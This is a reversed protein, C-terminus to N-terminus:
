FTLGSFTSSFINSNTMNLRFSVTASLRLLGARWMFLRLFKFPEEFPLYSGHKNFREFFSKSAQVLINVFMLFFFSVLLWVGSCASLGGRLYTITM